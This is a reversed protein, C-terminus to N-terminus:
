RHYYDSAGTNSSTRLYHYNITQVLPALTAEEGGSECDISNLIIGSGLFPVLLIAQRKM